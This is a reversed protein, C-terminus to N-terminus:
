DFSDNSVGSVFNKAPKHEKMKKTKELWGIECLTTKKYILSKTNGKGM